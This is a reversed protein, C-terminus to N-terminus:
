YISMGTTEGWWASFKRWWNGDRYTEYETTHIKNPENNWWRDFTDRAKVLAEHDPSATVALNAECNFNNMNRRTYNCSGLLLTATGDPNEVYLMKVHCQEGHTDAWRLPIGAKVMKAGTQRNPVGNKTRGFSDKAPDLIVRVDVGRKKAKGFAKIVKKESMYFMCLDVRAGPEAHELLEMVKERIKIESLLEVKNGHPPEVDENVASLPSATGGLEPVFKEEGSFELVASEMDCAEAIGANVKLAVNRHASSASHPNASTMLLAKDTVIVKRHNAKFNLMKFMSRMSIRGEGMPNPLTRGPGTGFPQGLIRWPWSYIPNSDRMKNLNTEVVLVGAEELSQFQPSPISGYVSNVPDTIFIIEVDPSAKKKALLKETLEPGLARMCPGDEFGFENMLFLDLLVFQEAEDIMVYIADFIEQDVDRTGNTDVWTEDVFFEVETAQVEAHYALGLKEHSTACGSLFLLLCVSSLILVYKRMLLELIIAAFGLGVELGQFDLFM